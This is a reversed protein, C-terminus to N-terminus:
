CRQRLRRRVGREYNVPGVGSGDGGGHLGSLGSTAGVLAGLCRGDKVSARLGDTVRGLPGFPYSRRGSAQIRGVVSRRTLATEVALMAVSGSPM